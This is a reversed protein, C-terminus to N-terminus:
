PRMEDELSMIHEEVERKLERMIDLREDYGLGDACSLETLLEKVQDMTDEINM